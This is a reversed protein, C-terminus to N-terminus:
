EGVKSRRLYIETERSFGIPRLKLRPAFKTIRMVDLETFQIITHLPHSLNPINRITLPIPRKSFDVQFYGRIQTVNSGDVFKIECTSDRKIIFLIKVGDKEGVWAGFLSEEDVVNVCAFLCFLSIYLVLQKFGSLKM